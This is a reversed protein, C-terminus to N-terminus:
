KKRYIKRDYKQKFTRQESFFFNHYEFKGCFTMVGKVNDLCAQLYDSGTRGTTMILFVPYM